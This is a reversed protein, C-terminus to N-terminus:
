LHTYTSSIYQVHQIHQMYQIHAVEYMHMYMYIHIWTCLYEYIHRCIYMFMYIYIYIYIYIYVSIYIYMCISVFYYEGRIHLQLSVLLISNRWGINGLPQMALLAMVFYSALDQVSWVQPQLYKWIEGMRQKSSKISWKSSPKEIRYDSLRAPKIELWFKTIHLTIEDYM